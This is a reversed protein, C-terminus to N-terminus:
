KCYTGGESGKSWAQNSTRYAMASYQVQHLLRYNWPLNTRYFERYILGFPWASRSLQRDPYGADPYTSNQQLQLATYELFM